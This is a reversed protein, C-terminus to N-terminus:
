DEPERAPGEKHERGCLECIWKLNGMTSGPDFKREKWPCTCEGDGPDDMGVVGLEALMADINSRIAMLQHVIVEVNM